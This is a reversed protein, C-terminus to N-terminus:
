ENFQFNFGAGFFLLMLSMGSFINIPSFLSYIEIIFHILCFLSFSKRRRQFFFLYIRMGANIRTHVWCWTTQISKIGMVFLTRQRQRVYFSVFIFTPSRCLFFLLFFFRLFAFLVNLFCWLLPFYFQIKFSVAFECSFIVFFFTRKTSKEQQFTM